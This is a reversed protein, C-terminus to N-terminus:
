LGCTVTRMAAYMRRVRYVLREAVEAGAGIAESCMVRSEAGQVPSLHCTVPSLDCDEKWRTRRRRVEAGAVEM